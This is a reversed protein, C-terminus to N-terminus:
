IAKHNSQARSRRGRAQHSKKLKKLQLVERQIFLLNTSPVKPGESPSVEVEEPRKFQKTIASGTPSVKLGECLLVETQIFLLNFISSQTNLKSTTCPALAIRDMLSCIVNTKQTSYDMFGPPEIPIESNWLISFQEWPKWGTLETIPMLWRNEKYYFYAPVFSLEPLAYKCYPEAKVMMALNFTM